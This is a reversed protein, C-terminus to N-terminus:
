HSKQLKENVTVKDKNIKLSQMQKKHSKQNWKAHSKPDKDIKM